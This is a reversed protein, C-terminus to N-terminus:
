VGNLDKLEQNILLWRCYDVTEHAIGQEIMYILTATTFGYQLEYRHIDIELKYKYRELGEPTRPQIGTLFADLVIPDDLEKLRM